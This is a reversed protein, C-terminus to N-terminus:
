WVLPGKEVAESQRRRGPVFCTTVNEICCITEVRLTAAWAWVDFMRVPMALGCLKGLRGDGQHVKHLGRGNTVDDRRERAPGSHETM